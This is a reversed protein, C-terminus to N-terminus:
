WYYKVGDVKYCTKNSSKIDCAHKNSSQNPPFARILGEGTAGSYIFLSNFITNLPLKLKSVEGGDEKLEHTKNNGIILM